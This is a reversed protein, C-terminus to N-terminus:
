GRVPEIARAAADYQWASLQRIRDAEEHRQAERYRIEVTEEGKGGHM